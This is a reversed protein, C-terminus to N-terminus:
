ELKDVEMYLFLKSIRKHKKPTFQEVYMTGKAIEKNDINKKCWWCFFM